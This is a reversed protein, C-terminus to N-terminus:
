RVKEREKILIKWDRTGCKLVDESFLVIPEKIKEGNIFTGNTSHADEVWWQNHHFRIFAHHNSLKSDNYKIDNEKDRGIAIVMRNRFERTESNFELSELTIEPINNQIPKQTKESLLRWLRFLALGLFLYLAVVLLIRFILVVIGTM